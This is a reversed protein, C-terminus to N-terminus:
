FRLNVNLFYTTGRGYWYKPGFVPTDLSKDALLQRYNANRGQEFGGSKFVTDFLNNVSAFVSVFTDNIRWSKGGVLNTVVYSDFKEQRLLEKAVAPDYENFPMGDFDTYFNSSRQLPSVDVYANSMFNVTTSFWWYDPDRYEFGVSFAQQPGNALKYDKLSAKGQTQLGFDRILPDTSAPNVFDESAIYLDPNNAYTYQGISAVGKLKLTPIVQYEIGFEMGLHQKDIGQLIEQIFAQNDGGVGDAFFFSIENADEIKTYYGTLRAQVKPSRLVYSADFSLVKEETINPVVAHNERSNAFTNRITPAKTYYSANADFLHRGTLKYTGGAKVGIGTFSLKEGKGLSSNAFGGNQYIGERQYSTNTVNLATYFDVKNYKFQAQAFGGIVNSLINYNYRFTDGEGVVRNPNLLDNQIQGPNNSLDDAFGDVDLFGTGGLLDLVNAFNQSKLNKYTLTGNITINDNLVKNLITNVTFQKDDVRDEYQIFTSNLGQAANQINTQYMARWDLQGDTLFQQQLGFAIEPMDPFNRLAYSPLKQYYTPDPNAGGGEPLGSNPNIDTGGFDLRSNGLSGFQYGVNTTLSTNEDIDWYHNLIFIPEILEKYRSNRITGDQYGWYSNYQIGRLDYVEQTNASSKGRKNPAFISTLNLSHSDNIKKEVSAFVSYANYSTGDNFGEEGARRSAAISYAWGNEQMGSSYTGMVRHVYSRNSSAYSVRVGTRQESARTNINTSGLLGGFTFNSATLGNTFEQNRMVDNLGGWNSWQPRGNFLKNMEIGNIMVIGNESDLGRIRFFSGSFDFAATRLYVDRTSQLLGSINDAASADDNLEDDTITITSLDLDETVDQYLLITGLDITNGNFEIPFNQTEYGKLRVELIYSGNSLNTLTFVGDKDTTGNVSTTLITVSVGEIPNESNSDKVIGKVINQAEAGFILAIGFFMTMILKRM